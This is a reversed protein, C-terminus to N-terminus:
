RPAETHPLDALADYARELRRYEDRGRSTAHLEARLQTLADGARALNREKEYGRHAQKMAETFLRRQTERRTSPSM